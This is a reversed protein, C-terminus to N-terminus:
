VNWCSGSPDPWQWDGSDCNLCGKNDNCDLLNSWMLAEERGSLKYCHIPQFGMTGIHLVARWNGNDHTQNFVRPLHAHNSV